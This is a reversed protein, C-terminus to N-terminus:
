LFQRHLFSGRFHPKNNLQIRKPFQTKLICAFKGIDLSLVPAASTFSQLTKDAQNGVAFFCPDSGSTLPDSKTNTHYWATENTYGEDLIIRGEDLGGTGGGGNSSDNSNSYAYYGVVDGPSFTITESENPVGRVLGDYPVSLGHFTNEGVLSYCGDKEM